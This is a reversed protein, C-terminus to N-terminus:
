AQPAEPEVPAPVPEAPKVLFLAAMKSGALMWANLFAEMSEKSEAGLQDVGSVGTMVKGLNDTFIAGLDEGAQFGDALKAKATVVIGVLSEALEDAEKSVNVTKSVLMTKEKFLTRTARQIVKM